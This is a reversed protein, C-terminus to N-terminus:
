STSLRRSGRNFPRRIENVPLTSPAVQLISSLTSLSDPPFEGARPPFHGASSLLPLTSRPSPPSSSRRHLSNRRQPPSSSLLPLTSRRLPRRSPRL